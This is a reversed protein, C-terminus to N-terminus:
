ILRRNHGKLSRLMRGWFGARSPRAEHMVEPMDAWRVWSQNRWHLMLLSSGLWNLRTMCPEDSSGEEERRLGPLVEHSLWRRLARNEPIYHHILLAFVGSESVLLCKEWQGHTQLWAMRRQDPDLKVTAREDLRAGMLRAIDALCFWAQADLYVARLLRHHRIFTCADFYDSCPALPDLTHM